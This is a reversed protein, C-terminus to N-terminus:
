KLFLYNGFKQTQSILLSKGGPAACMDLVFDTKKLDLALVPLISGGDLLWWGLFIYNKLKIKSSIGNSDKIPAPFYDLCGRGFVFLKLDRPYYIFDNVFPM